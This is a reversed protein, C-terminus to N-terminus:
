NDGYEFIFHHFQETSSILRNQINVALFILCPNLTRSLIKYLFTVHEVSRQIKGHDIKLTTSINKHLKVRKHLSSKFNAAAIRSIM